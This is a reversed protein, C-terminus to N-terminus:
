QQACQINDYEEEKIDNVEKYYEINVLEDVEYNHDKVDFIEKIKDKIDLSLKDPFKINFQILLDGYILHKDHLIPMGYSKIKMIYNPNLIKDINIFLDKNNLYRLKYITGCLAEELPIDVKVYLNNNERKYVPHEIESLRICIDGRNDLVPNYDGKGKLIIDKGDINGKNINLNYKKKEIKIGQTDCEKCEHGSKILFGKSKCPGCPVQINKFVGPSVCVRQYVSRKGKCFECLKRGNSLYGRGNCTNCKCNTNIHIIKKVGDRLEDLSVNVEHIKINTKSTHTNINNFFNGMDGMMNNFGFGSNFMNFMEQPNMGGHGGGQGGEEFARWGFQDYRAKKGKDNLIEYAKNIDNFKTKAEKSKNKDPHYKFATKKYAKQIEKDSANKDIGLIGYCDVM